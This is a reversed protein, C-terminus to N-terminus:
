GAETGAAAALAIEALDSLFVAGKVRRHVEVSRRDSADRRRKLFKLEELRDLARTVAPKPLRLTEALARVTHPGPAMFVTLLLALQRSTLDPADSRVIEALAARM